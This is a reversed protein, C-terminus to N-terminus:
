ARFIEPVYFWPVIYERCGNLSYDGSTSSLASLTAPNWRTYVRVDFNVM